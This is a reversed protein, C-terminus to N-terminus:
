LTQYCHICYEVPLLYSDLHIQFHKKQSNALNLVWTAKLEPHLFSSGPVGSSHLPVKYSICRSQFAPLQGGFAVDRKGLVILLLTYLPVSHMLLSATICLTYEESVSHSAVYPM